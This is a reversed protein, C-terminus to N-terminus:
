LSNNILTLDVINELESLLKKDDNRYKELYKEIVNKQRENLNNRGKLNMNQYNESLIFCMADILNIIETKRDVFQWKDNKKIKIYPLKKNSLKINQNEPHEPDFHIKEILRPVASYTKSFLNLLYKKSIHDINENGYNNIIINNNSNTTNNINNNTINNQTQIKFNKLEEIEKEMKTIKENQTIALMEADKKKKCTKLHKTLGTSRTFRKNCYDCIHPNKENLTCKPHMQTCKEPVFPAFLHMKPANENKYFHTNPHQKPAIQTSNLHQKPATNKEDNFGYYKRIEEIDIDEDTAKCVNKRNLHNILSSKFKTNYGCRFCEYHVM